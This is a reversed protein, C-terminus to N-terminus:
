MSGRKERFIMYSLVGMFGLTGLIEPALSVGVGFLGLGSLVAGEVAVAILAVSSYRKGFSAATALLIFYSLFSAGNVWTPFLATTLPGFILSLDPGSQLPSSPPTFAAVYVPSITCTGGFNSCVIANSASFKVFYKQADALKGPLSVSIFGYHGAFTSSAVPCYSPANCSGNFIYLGVTLSTTGTTTDNYQAQVTDTAANWGAWVFISTSASSPSKVTAAEVPVPVSGGGAPLDVTTLFTNSGSILTLAYSGPIAYLGYYNSVSTYGSSFTQAGKTVYIASGAGFSNSYDSVQLVYSYVLSPASLWLTNNSAKPIISVHYNTGVYLTLLRATFLNVVIQSGNAAYYTPNTYGTFDVQVKSNAYAGLPFPLGTTTQTLYLNAGTVGYSIVVGAVAWSTSATDTSPFTTPSTITTSYESSGFATTTTKTFSSGASWTQSSLTSMAAIAIFPTGTFATSATALSTSSGTATKTALHYAQLGETEFASCHGQATLVSSIAESATAGTVYGVYIAATPGTTGVSVTKAWSTILTDSPLGYTGYSSVTFIMLDGVNPNSLTATCTGGGGTGQVTAVVQVVAFTNAQPTAQATFAYAVNDTGGGSTDTFTNPPTSVYSGAGGASAFANPLTVLTNYDFQGSCTAAGGGNALTITCGTAPLGAKTGTVPESYAHNWTGSPTMEYTIILQLYDTPNFLTCPTTTCTAVSTTTSSSDFVYAKNGSPAPMTLVLSCSSLVLFNHTATGSTFSTSNTACGSVGVSFASGGTPITVKVPKVVFTVLTLTITGAAGTTGSTGSSGSSGSSGDSGICVNIGVIGGNGGGGSASGGAASPCGIVGNGNGASGTGGSGPSGANGGLGGPASITGLDTRGYIAGYYLTISGGPGGPGGPGSNGGRGGGAGGYAWGNLTGSHSGTGGNGGNLGNGGVGGGGGPALISGGNDILYLYLTFAHGTGGALGPNGTSAPSGGSASTVTGSASSSGVCASAGSAGNGSSGTSGSASTSSLPPCSVVVGNGAGGTTGASGPSGNAGNTAAQAYIYGNNIFLGCVKVVVGNNVTVVVNVNVTMNQYNKNSSITSTTSFVVSGDAGTGYISTASCSSSLAYVPTPGFTFLSVFSGLLLFALLLSSLRKM